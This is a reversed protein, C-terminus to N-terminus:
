GSVFTDYAILRTSRLAYILIRLQIGLVLTEGPPFSAKTDDGTGRTGRRAGLHTKTSPVPTTGMRVSKHCLDRDDREFECGRRHGGALFEDHVECIRYLGGAQLLVRERDLLADLVLADAGRKASQRTRQDDGCRACRM